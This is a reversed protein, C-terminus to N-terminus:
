SRENKLFLKEDCEYKDHSSYYPYKKALWEPANGPLYKWRQYMWIYQEPYQRIMDENAKLIAVTIEYDSGYESLKKPLPKLLLEFKGEANRICAGTYFPVNMKRALTAPMVSTTAPLGFFPAFVGAHKPSINQDILMGVTFANKLTRICAVGAGAVPLIKLGFRTRSGMMIKNFHANKSAAAVAAIKKDLFSLMYLLVEFNGLHPLCWMSPQDKACIADPLEPIIVRKKLQEPHRLLVMYDLGFEIMYRINQKRLERRERESKEPFAVALNADVVRVIPRLLGNAMVSAASVFFSRLWSPLNSGIFISFDIVLNIPFYIWKEKKKKEHASEPLVEFM